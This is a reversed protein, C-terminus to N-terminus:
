GRSRLAAALTAPDAIPLGCVGARCLYAAAGQRTPGKGFAPHATPLPTQGTARLVAIAPDPAALATAALAQFHPDAGSGAIVVTAAEALLDAAALLTPMASLRGADGSFADLVSQAAARWVEDGTLHWLRAFNEAMVGNGAPTANCAASRPRTIPVDTADDATTFFGGDSAAFHALAARTLREAHDRYRPDGSTEYLALAARGMCAQDDILGAATM